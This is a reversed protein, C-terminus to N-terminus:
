RHHTLLISEDGQALPAVASAESLFPRHEVIIDLTATWNTLNRARIMAVPSGIDSVSWEYVSLSVSKACGFMETSRVLPYHVFFFFPSSVALECMWRHKVWGPRPLNQRRVRLTAWAGAVPGRTLMLYMNLWHRNGFMGTANQETKMKKFFYLEPKGEECAREVHYSSKMRSDSRLAQQQPLNWESWDSVSGSHAADLASRCLLTSWSM